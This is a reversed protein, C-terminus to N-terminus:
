YRNNTCLVACNHILYLLFRTNFVWGTNTAISIILCDFSAHITFSCNLLRQTRNVRGMEQVIDYLSFPFGKHMANTLFNSSIGCNAASTAILIQIKGLSVTGDENWVPEGDGPLDAFSTFADMISVKMKLGDGGTFSRATARGAGKKHHKDLLEEAKDLM